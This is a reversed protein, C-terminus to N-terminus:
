PAARLSQDLVVAFPAAQPGYFVVPTVQLQDALARATRNATQGLTTAGVGVIMKTKNTRLATVDPRHQSLPLLVHALFYDFNKQIRSLTAALASNGPPVATRMPNQMGNMAMFKDMAAGVGASQYTGYIERNNALSKAPDELLMVCPPEHAVLAKVLQPHRAALNLGVQAGGSTGFVYVPESGITKIVAAADDGHVDTNMDEPAGDFTSRSNGRPDIAVVTYRDALLRAIGAFVGADTPGGPIMLLV